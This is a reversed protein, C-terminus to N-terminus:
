SKQLSRWVLFSLNQSLAQLYFYSDASRGSQALYGLRLSRFTDFTIMLLTPKLSM